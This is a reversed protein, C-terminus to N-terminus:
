ISQDARNDVTAASARAIADILVEAPQAGSVAYRGDLIFCPVGTVGIRYAHNIEAVVTERDEPGALRDAVDGTMGVEGALVALVDNDGVDLGDSFYAAFLREVMEDQRDQASAWYVLRHANVTDPARTIADFRYTIGEALGM